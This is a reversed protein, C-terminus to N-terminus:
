LSTESASVPRAEFLALHSRVCITRIRNVNRSCSFITANGGLRRSRQRDPDKGTIIDMLHNGARQPRDRALEPERSPDPNSLIQQDSFGDFSEDVVAGVIWFPENWLSPKRVWYDFLGAIRPLVFTVCVLIRRVCCWGVGTPIWLITYFGLHICPCARRSLSSLLVCRRGSVGMCVLGLGRWIVVSSGSLDRLRRRDPGTISARGAQTLYSRVRLVL